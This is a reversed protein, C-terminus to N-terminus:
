DDPWHQRMAKKRERLIGWLAVFGCASGSASLMIRVTSAHTYLLIALLAVQCLVFLASAAIAITHRGTTM